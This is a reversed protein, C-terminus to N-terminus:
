RRRAVVRGLGEADAPEALQDGLAEADLVLEDVDRVGDLPKDGRPQATGVIGALQPFITSVDGWAIYM